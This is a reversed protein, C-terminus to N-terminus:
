ALRVVSQSLAHISLPSRQACTHTQGPELVIDVPEGDFCLWLVGRECTVRCGHPQAVWTTAGRNLSVTSASPRADRGPEFVRRVIARAWGRPAARLGQHPAFFPVQSTTNM